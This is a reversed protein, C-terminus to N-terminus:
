ARRRAREFARRLREETIRLALQNGDNIRVVPVKMGFRARLGDDTDVDREVFTARNRRALRLVLPKAQDCLHCGRRTYFEVLTKTRPARLWALLRRLTM